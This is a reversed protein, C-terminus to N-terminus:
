SEERSCAALRHLVDLAQKDRLVERARIVGARLDPVREAALLAAAANALVVDAAAGEQGELFAQIRSASDQPDSATLEEAGCEPL